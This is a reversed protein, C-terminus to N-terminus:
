SEVSVLQVLIMVAADGWEEEAARVRYRGSPIDVRIFEDEKLRAFQYASDFVVLPEQVLIEAGSEWRAEAVVSPVLAVFEDDEADGAVARVFMRAEPLFTTAAPEGALVLAPKGGVEIVGVYDYISCARDYDEVDTTGGFAGFWRGLVSEPIAILPGGGSEVWEASM